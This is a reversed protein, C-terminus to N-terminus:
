TRKFLKIKSYESWYKTAFFGEIASNTKSLREVLEKQLDDKETGMLSALRVFGQDSNPLEHTQADNIMQLRHEITRHFRYNEILDKVLSKTVM